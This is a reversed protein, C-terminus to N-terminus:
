DFVSQAKVQPKREVASDLFEFRLVPAHANHGKRMVFTKRGHTLEIRYDASFKHVLHPLTRQLYDLQRDERVIIGMSELLSVKPWEDSGPRGYTVVNMFGDFDRRWPDNELIEKGNSYIADMFYTVTLDRKPQKLWQELVDILTNKLCIELHGGTVYIQSVRLNIPLEGDKSYVWHSPNCDDTLYQEPPANDELYIVPVNRNKAFQVANDVGRKTAMRADYRTSAHTVLLVADSEIHIQAPNTQAHPGCAGLATAPVGMLAALALILLALGTRQPEATHTGLM